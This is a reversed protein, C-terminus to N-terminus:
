LNWIDNEMDMQKVINFQAEVSFNTLGFSGEFM